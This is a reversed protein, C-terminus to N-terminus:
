GRDGGPADGDVRDSLREYKVAEQLWERIWGNVSKGQAQAARQWEGWESDWCAISHSRWGRVKGWRAQKRTTRPM